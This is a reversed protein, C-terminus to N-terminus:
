YPDLFYHTYMLSTSITICVEEVIRGREVDVKLMVNQCGAVVISVNGKGMYSMCSLNRMTKTRLPENTAWYKNRAKLYNSARVSHAM